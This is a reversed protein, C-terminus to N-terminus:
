ISNENKIWTNVLPKLRLDFNFQKPLIYQSVENYKKQGYKIEALFTSIVNQPVGFKMAKDFAEQAENYKKNFIHIKGLLVFASANRTISELIVEIKKTYFGTLQEDAVGHYIFQWYTQALEFIINELKDPDVEDKIKDYIETIRDNLKKEFTSVLAFAYLRTEDSSDSLFHKIKGINGQANSDYLIKLSKIKIDSSLKDRDKGEMILIGEQFESYVIPFETIQNDFDIVEYSPHSVRQTAWSLGFLIMIITLIIGIFLLGINIVVFFIFIDRRYKKYKKPMFLILVFSLVIWFLIEIALFVLIDNTTNTEELLSILTTIHLNDLM